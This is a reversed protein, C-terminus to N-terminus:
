QRLIEEKVIAWLYEIMAQIAETEYLDYSESNYIQEMLRYGDM